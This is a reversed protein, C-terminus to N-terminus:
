DQDRGWSCYECESHHKPLPGRLTKVAREFIRKAREPDVLLKVVESHFRFLREAEVGEPFYYVLYAFDATQYGSAQLLLAYSDLQTQYYEESAGEKPAGRRTKFDLPIYTDGDVLCEDLAGWLVAQLKGDEYRLRKGILDRNGTIAGQAEGELEPPLKGAFNEYYRRLVEDMGGPLSPFIGKPRHVRANHHLWFCRTCDEFLGLGTATPSLRILEKTDRM